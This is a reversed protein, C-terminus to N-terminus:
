DLQPFLILDNKYIVTGGVVADGDDLPDHCVFATQYQQAVRAIQAYDGRHVSGETMRPACVYSGQRNVVSDKRSEDFLRHGNQQLVRVDGDAAGVTAEGKVADRAFIRLRDLRGDEQVRILLRDNKVWVFEDRDKACCRKPDRSMRRDDLTVAKELVPPEACFELMKAVPKEQVADSKPLPHGINWFGQRNPPLVRM